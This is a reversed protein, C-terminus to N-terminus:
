ESILNFDVRRDSQLTGSSKDKVFGLGKTKIRNKDIGAKVLYEKVIEARRTSIDLNSKDTGASDSYGELLLRIKNNQRLYNILEHLYTIDTIEIKCSNFNFYVPKPKIDKEQSPEIKVIQTTMSNKKTLFEVAFTKISEDAPLVLVRKIDPNATINITGTSDPIVFETKEPWSDKKLSDFYLAKFKIDSKPTYNESDIKLSLTVPSESKDVAKVSKEAKSTKGGKSKKETKVTKEAKVPTLKKMSFDYNNSGPSKTSIIVSDKDLETISIIDDDSKDSATFSNVPVIKNSSDDYFFLRPVATDNKKYGTIYSGPRFLSKKFMYIRIDSNKSIAATEIDEWSDDKKIVKIITTLSKDSGPSRTFFLQKGDKTIYPNIEDDISNVAGFLQEPKGWGKRGKESYYIDYSPKETSSYKLSGARNSSFLIFKGDPSIYPSIDDSDSNLESVPAAVSWKGNKFETFYLDSNDKGKPKRSFLFYKKNATITCAAEDGDTNIKKLFSENITQAADIQTVSLILATILTIETIIMNKMYVTVGSFNIDNM